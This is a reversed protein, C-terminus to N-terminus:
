AGDRTQGGGPLAARFEVFVFAVVPRQGFRDDLLALRDGARQETVESQFVL